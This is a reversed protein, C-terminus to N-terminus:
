YFHWGCRHSRARNQPKDARHMEQITDQQFCSFAPM